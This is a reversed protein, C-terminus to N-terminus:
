SRPRRIVHVITVVLLVLMTAMVAMWSPVAITAFFEHIPHEFVDGAQGFRLSCRNMTPLYTGIFRWDVGSIRSVTFINRYGTNRAPRMRAISTKVDM